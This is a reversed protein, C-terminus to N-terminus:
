KCSKLVDFCWASHDGKWHYGGCKTFHRKIYLPSVFQKGMTHEAPPIGGYRSLFLYDVEQGGECGTYLHGCTSLGAEISTTRYDFSNLFSRAVNFGDVPGSLPDDLESSEVIELTKRDLCHGRLKKRYRESPSDHTNSFVPEIGTQRRYQDAVNNSRGQAVVVQLLFATDRTRNSLPPKM